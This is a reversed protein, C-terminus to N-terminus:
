VGKALEVRQGHPYPVKHELQDYIKPSGKQFYRRM